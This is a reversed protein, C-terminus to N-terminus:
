FGAYGNLYHGNNKGNKKKGDTRGMQMTSNHSTKGKKNKSNGEVSIKNEFVRWYDIRLVSVSSERLSSRRKTSVAQLTLPTVRSCWSRCQQSNASCWDAVNLVNHKSNSPKNILHNFIITTMAAKKEKKKKKSKLWTGRPKCIHACTQLTLLPVHAHPQLYWIFMYQIFMKLVSSNWTVSNVEAWHDWKLM